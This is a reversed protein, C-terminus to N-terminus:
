CNPATVAHSTALTEPGENSWLLNNEEKEGLCLGEGGGGGRGGRGKLQWVCRM